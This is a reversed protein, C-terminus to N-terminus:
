HHCYLYELHWLKFPLALFVKKKPKAKTQEEENVPGGTESIVGQKPAAENGENEEDEVRNISLM